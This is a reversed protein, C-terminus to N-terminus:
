QCYFYIAMNMIMIFALFVFVKKLDKYWEIDGKDNTKILLLTSRSTSGAILYGGDETQIVAHGANYIVKMGLHMNYYSPVYVAISFLILTLLIYFAKKFKSM